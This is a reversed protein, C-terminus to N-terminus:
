WICIRFPKRIYAGAERHGVEFTRLDEGPVSPSETTVRRVIFGIIVALVSRGVSSIDIMTLVCFITPSDVIVARLRRVIPRDM